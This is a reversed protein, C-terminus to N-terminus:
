SLHSAAREGRAHERGQPFLSTFGSERTAAVLTDLVRESSVPIRLTSQVRRCLVSVDYEDSVGSAGHLQQATRLAVRAVDAAHLRLALADTRAAAGLEALRWFTFLALEALGAAAVLADAVQFQVAQFDAIRQGFQHRTRVHEAALEVSAEVHGLVTAASLAWAATSAADLHPSDTALETLTVPVAFPALRSALAPGAVAATWKAGSLDVAVIEGLVDAHDVLPDRTDVLVVARGDYRCLTAEVPWPLAVRGAERCLTFAALAQDADALPDIDDAGLARLADGALARASPDAEARRALDVGGLDGYARRATAALEVIYEPVVLDM